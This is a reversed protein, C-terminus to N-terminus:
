IHTLFGDEYYIIMFSRQRVLLDAGTRTWPHELCIPTVMGPGEPLGMVM